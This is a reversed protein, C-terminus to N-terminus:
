RLFPNPTSSGTEAQHQQQSGGRRHQDVEVKDEVRNSEGGGGGDRSSSSAIETRLWVNSRGRRPRLAFPRPPSCGM